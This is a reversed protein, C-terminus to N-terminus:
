KKENEDDEEDESGDKDENGNEGDNFTMGDENEDEEDGDVEANEAEAREMRRALDAEDTATVVKPQTNKHYLYSFTAFYFMLKLEAM